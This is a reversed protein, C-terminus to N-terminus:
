FVEKFEHESEDLPFTNHVRPAVEGSAGAMPRVPHPASLEKHAPPDARLSRSSERGSGAIRQLREVTAHLSRAQAALEQSAAASQEANAANRQTVKEM